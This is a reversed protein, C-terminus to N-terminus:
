LEGPMKGTCFIVAHARTRCRKCYFGPLLRGFPLTSARQNACMLTYPHMSRREGCKGCQVEIM